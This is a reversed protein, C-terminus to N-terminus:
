PYGRKALMEDARAKDEKALIAHLRLAKANKAPAESWVRHDDSFEYDPDYSRAAERFQQWRDVEVVRVAPRPGKGRFQMSDASKQAEERTEHTYFSDMETGYRMWRGPMWEYEVRYRTPLEKESMGHLRGYKM